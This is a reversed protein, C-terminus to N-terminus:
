WRSPDDHHLRHHRTTHGDRGHERCLKRQETCYQDHGTESEMIARVRTTPCESELWRRITDKLLVQDQSLGFDV